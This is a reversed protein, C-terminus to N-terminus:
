FFPFMVISMIVIAVAIFLVPHNIAKITLTFLINKVWKDEFEQALAETRYIQNRIKPDNLYHRSVLERIQEIYESTSWISHLVGNETSLKRITFPLKNKRLGKKIKRYNPYWDQETFEKALYLKM